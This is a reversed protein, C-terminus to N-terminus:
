LNQNSYIRINYNNNYSVIINGLPVIMMKFGTGYDGKGEFGIEFIVPVSLNVIFVIYGSFVMKLFTLFISSQIAIRM